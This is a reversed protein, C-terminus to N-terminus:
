DAVTLHIVTDDRSLYFDDDVHEFRPRSTLFDVLWRDQNHM